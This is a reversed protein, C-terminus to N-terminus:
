KPVTLIAILGFVIVVGVFGWFIIRVVKYLNVIKGNPNTWNKYHEKDKSVRIYWYALFIFLASILIISPLTMVREQTTVIQQGGFVSPDITIDSLNLESM